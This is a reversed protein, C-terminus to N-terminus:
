RKIRNVINKLNANDSKLRRMEKEIRDIRHQMPRVALDILARLRQEEKTIM